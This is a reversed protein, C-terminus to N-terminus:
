PSHGVAALAFHVIGFTDLVEEVEASNDDKPSQSSTSSNSPASSGPPSAGSDASSSPTTSPQGPSDQLLPHPEDSVAAQMQRLATELQAIKDKLEEVEAAAKLRPRSLAILSFDMGQCRLRVEAGKYNAVVRFAVTNAKACRGLLSNFGVM